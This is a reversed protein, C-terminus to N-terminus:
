IDDRSFDEGFVKKGIALRLAEDPLESEDGPWVMSQRVCRKSDAGGDADCQMCLPQDDLAKVSGPAVMIMQGVPDGGSSVGCARICGCDLEFVAVGMVESDQAGLWAAIDKIATERQRAIKLSYAEMDKQYEEASKEPIAKRAQKVIIKKLEEQVKAANWKPHRKRIREAHKNWSEILERSREDLMHPEVKVANPNDM